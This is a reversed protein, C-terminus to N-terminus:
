TGSIALRLHCTALLKHDEFKQCKLLNKEMIKQTRRRLVGLITAKRTTTTTTTTTTTRRRRRRRPM